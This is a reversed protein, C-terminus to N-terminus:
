MAKLIGEGEKVTNLHIKISVQPFNLITWAMIILTRMEIFSTYYVNYVKSHSYEKQDFM